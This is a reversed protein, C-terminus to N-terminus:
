GGMKEHVVFPDEQSIGATLKRVITATDSVAMNINLEKWNTLYNKKSLSNTWTCSSTLNTTHKADALSAIIQFITKAEVSPLWNQEILLLHM